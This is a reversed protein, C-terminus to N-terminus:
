RTCVPQFDPQGASGAGWGIITGDARLALGDYGRAAIAVVNTAGPPISIQGNSGGWGVVTGDARLALSHYDGAAIAVM